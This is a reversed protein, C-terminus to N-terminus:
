CVCCLNNCVGSVLYAPLYHGGYDLLYHIPKNSTLDLNLDWTLSWSKCLYSKYKINNNQYYKYYFKNPNVPNIFGFKKISAILANKLIDLYVEKTM